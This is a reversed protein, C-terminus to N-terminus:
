LKDTNNWHPRYLVRSLFLLQENVLNFALDPKFIYDLLTKVSANRSILANM